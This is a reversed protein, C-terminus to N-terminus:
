PLTPLPQPRHVLRLGPPSERPVVGELLARPDVLVLGRERLRPLERELLALTAPRPHGIALARGRRQALALWRRFEAAVAEPRPDDDLFVDRALAPLGQERALRWAVSRPTTRSDVFFLEGHRRLAEMVWRMHGPHRTLLSGMHNNVGAVHPVAALDAAVTRLLETRTMHLRLAGPGLAQNGRVAEMPLHLLVTKGARHCAEALERAYATHPLVSCAVPGPLAATRAGAERNPGLDDMILAVRPPTAAAPSLLLLLAAGLALPMGAWATRRM